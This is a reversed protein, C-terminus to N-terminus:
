LDGATFDLHPAEVVQGAPFAPIVTDLPLAPKYSHGSMWIRQAPDLSLWLIRILVQGDAPEPIPAENWSFEDGTLQGAPRISLIWQRNKNGASPPRARM